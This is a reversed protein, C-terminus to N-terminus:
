TWIELNNSYKQEVLSSGIGKGVFFSKENMVESLVDFITKKEVFEKTQATINLKKEIFKIAEDRSGFEDILGLEKAEIGLFIQATEIQNISEDSLNRSKIIDQIFYKHILDLQKQLIREEDYTLEKFPSGIDKYKGAVLRQYTVNYDKLLGSFQLYSSIVGISGTVSMRNAFIYDTASAVWYAGSAGVERIYSVTTKNVRKIASVIEDTSVAAGGPSNIELIIAKIRPDKDASEIFQVITKSSVVSQGFMDGEDPMIVGVIPIIAVNGESLDDERFLSFIGAVIFSLIALIVIMKIATYWKSKEKQM